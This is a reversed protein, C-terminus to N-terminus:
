FLICIEDFDDENRQRRKKKEIREKVCQMFSHIIRRDTENVVVVVDAWKMWWEGNFSSVLIHIFFLVFRLTTRSLAYYLIPHTLTTHGTQRRYIFQWISKPCTYSHHAIVTFCRWMLMSMLSYGSTMLFKDFNILGFRVLIFLFGNSKMIADSVCEFVVWQEALGNAAARRRLLILVIIKKKEKRFQRSRGILLADYNLCLFRGNSTAGLADENWSSISHRFCKTHRHRRRRYRRYFVFVDFHWVMFSKTCQLVLHARTQRSTLINPWKIQLNEFIHANIDRVFYPTWAMDAETASM